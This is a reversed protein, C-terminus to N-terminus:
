PKRLQGKKVSHLKNKDPKNILRITDTGEFASGDNLQGSILLEVETTPELDALLEQLAPRSFKIIAFEDELWVRDALIQGELLISNPDIDAVDYDEPLSIRCTIWKGKSRLNLTKPRIKVVAQVAPLSEYEYAGMDIANGSVRPNGDLDTASLFYGSDGANICPSTPLLHYDGQTWVWVDDFQDDPTGNPDWYGTGLDVFCPDTDINGEGEYGGQVNSYRVTAGRLQTFPSGEDGNHYLISNTIVNSASIGSFGAPSNGAITSNSIIGGLEGKGFAIAAGDRRNNSSNRTIICGTIIPYARTHYLAAGHDASNGAITSNRITFSTVRERGSLIGQFYIGGAQGHGQSRNGTINSNTITLSTDESYIGGGLPFGGIVINGNIHTDVISVDAETCFIAGGGERWLGGTASNATLACHNISASTGTDCYLGGGAGASNRDFTCDRLTLAAETSYLGGGAKALNSGFTCDILNVTAETSYIGGGHESASNREITCDFLTLNAQDAYIAGGAQHAFNDSFTSNIITPSTDPHCYVAGAQQASNDRFICRSITIPSRNYCYIAGGKEHYGNIVTLGILTFYRGVYFGIHPDAQTANCDIICNEPGAQSRVTIAERSFYLDRNGPGTYTGDAVVIEDGWGASDIAAQINNFDAPGDDDVTIIEATCPIVLMLYTCIFVLNRM